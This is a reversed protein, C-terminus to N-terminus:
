RNEGKRQMGVQRYYREPIAAQDKYFLWKCPDGPGAGVEIPPFPTGTREIPVIHHLVACHTCYCPFNARGFTMGQARKVCPFKGDQGFFGDQVMRGGSGCPDLILSVKEDDEEVRLGRGSHARFFRAFIEVKERTSAGSMGEVMPAMLIAGCYKLATELADDGFQDYIYAILAAVFEEFLHINPLSEDALAHVLEKAADDQKQDIAECIRDALPTELDRRESDTFIREDNMVYGKLSIGLCSM